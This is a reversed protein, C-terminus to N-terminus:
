WSGWSQTIQNYPNQLPFCHSLFCLLTVLISISYNEGFVNRDPAVPLHLKRPKMLLYISVILVGVLSLFGLGLCLLYIGFTFWFDFFWCVRALSFASYILYVLFLLLFVCWGFLGHNFPRTEFAHLFYVFM